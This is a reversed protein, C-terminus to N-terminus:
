RVGVRVGVGIRVRVRARARARLLYEAHHRGQAPKADGLSIARVTRRQAERHLHCPQQSRIVGQKDGYSDMGMLAGLRYLHWSM